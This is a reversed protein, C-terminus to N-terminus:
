IFSTLRYLWGLYIIYIVRFINIGTKLVSTAVIWRGGDSAWEKFLEQKNTATVKYFLCDIKETV